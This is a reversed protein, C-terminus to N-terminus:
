RFKRRMTAFAAGMLALLGGAMVLNQEDTTGTVGAGTSPLSKVAAVEAANASATTGAYGGQQHGKGYHHHGKGHHYGGDVGHDDGKGPSVGGNGPM